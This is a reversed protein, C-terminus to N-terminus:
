TQPIISCKIQLEAVTHELEQEKRKLPEKETETDKLTDKRPKQVNIHTQSKRM